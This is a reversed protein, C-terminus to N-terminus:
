VNLANEGFLQLLIARYNVADVRLGPRATASAFPDEQVQSGLTKVEMRKLQQTTLQVPRTRWDVAAFLERYNVEGGDASRPSIEILANLVDSDIPVSVSKFVQLVDKV